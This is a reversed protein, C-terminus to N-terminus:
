TTEGARELLGAIKKTHRVIRDMESVYEALIFGAVANMQGNAIRTVIETQRNESEILYAGRYERIKRAHDMRSGNGATWVEELTKLVPEISAYLKDCLAQAFAREDGQLNQKLDLSLYALNENHDSIRELYILFLNMWQLRRASAHDRVHGAVRMLYARMANRNLDVMDETQKVHHYMSRRPNTALMRNLAFGRRVIRTIRALERDGADLAKEPQDVLEEDLHSLTTDTGTFPTTRRIFWVVLPLASLFVAGGTIMIVTHANAIQRHPPGGITEVVAVLAPMFAIALGGALLNFYLHALAGRRAEPGTGISSLLATICTGIQAGVIMPIAHSIEPFVGSKALSFLIGLTASSSQVIATFALAGGLRAFLGLTDNHEPGVLWASLTERFPYVSQGMLRLGLFLLAFGILAQGLRKRREGGPWLRLPVGLMAFASWLWEIDLAIFQMALSTGLNAGAILAVAGALNLLGANIFSVAMVTTASSQVTAGLAVGASYAPLRRRSLSSMLRRIWGGSAEKLGDSLLLIGYLFLSLGGLGTIIAFHSNTM